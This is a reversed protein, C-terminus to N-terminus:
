SPIANMRILRASFDEYFTGNIISQKFFLVDPKTCNKRIMKVLMTYYSSDIIQIPKSNDDVIVNKNYLRNYKAILNGINWRKFTEIDLVILSMLPQSNVIDVNSLQHGNYRLYKRLGKKLQTLPSHLRGTTSDIQPYGRYEANHITDVTMFKSNYGMIVIEEISPLNILQEDTYKKQLRRKIVKERSPAKDDELFRLANEYDITLNSNFWKKLFYLKQEAVIDRNNKNSVISKILTATTIHEPKVRTIYRSSFRLGTSRKGVVYNTGEILINNDILYNILTRYDHIRKSLITKNIPIFGKSEEFDFDKQYRPIANLLHVIYILKDRHNINKGLTIPRLLLLEDISLNEPIYLRYPRYRKHQNKSSM